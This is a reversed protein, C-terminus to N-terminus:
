RFGKRKYRRTPQSPKGVTKTSSVFSLRVRANRGHLNKEIEVTLLFARVRSLLQLSPQLGPLQSWFCQCPIITQWIPHRYILKHDRDRRSWHNLPGLIGIDNALHKQMHLMLGFIRAALQQQAHKEPPKVDAKWM